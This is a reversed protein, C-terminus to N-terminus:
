GSTTAARRADEVVQDSVATNSGFVDISAVTQARSRLFSRTVEGLDNAGATLLIPAEERGGHPGGAIADPFADGRALNVHDLAWGFEAEAFEFVRVATEQRNAGAVRRVAYGADRVQQAVAASVVSEGGVIVVQKIQKGTCGGLGEYALASRTADPLRDPATLLLPLTEGYAIPGATMADAFQLGSTLFATPLGDVIGPSRDECDYAQRYARAATEYRDRGAVRQTRVPDGYFDRLQQIEQEVRPSVVDAEGMVLVLPNGFDRLVALTPEPAQAFPTLLVPGNFVLNVAALADPFADGRAVSPIGSRPGEADRAPFTARAIAAATAYRDPGALRRTAVDETAASPAAAAVVAGVALLSVLASRRTRM